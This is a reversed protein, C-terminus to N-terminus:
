YFRTLNKLVISYEETTSGIYRDKGAWCRKVLCRGGVTALLKLVESSCAKWRQPKERHHTFENLGFFPFCFRLSTYDGAKPFQAGSLRPSTASVKILLYKKQRM